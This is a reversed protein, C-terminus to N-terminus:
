SGPAGIVRDGWKAISEEDRAPMSRTLAAAALRGAMVISEGAGLPWRRPRGNRFIYRRKSAPQPFVPTLDLRRFWGSVVEDWVFANAATEVPGRATQM